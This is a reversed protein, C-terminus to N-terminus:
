QDARSRGLCRRAEPAFGFIFARSSPTMSVL